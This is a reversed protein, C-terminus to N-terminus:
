QKEHVYVLIQKKLGFNFCVIAKLGDRTTFNLHEGVFERCNMLSNWLTKINKNKSKSKFRNIM